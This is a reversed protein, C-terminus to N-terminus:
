SYKLKCQPYDDLLLDSSAHALSEEIEEENLPQKTIEMDRMVDNMLRESTSSVNYLEESIEIDQFIEQMLELIVILLKVSSFPCYRILDNADRIHEVNEVIQKISGSDIGSLEVANYSLVSLQTQSQLTVLLEKLADELCERDENSVARIFTHSCEDEKPPIDFPFLPVSCSEGDCKCLSHCVNCCTHQPDNSSVNEDFPSLLAKRICSNQGAKLAEKVQKDCCKMHKPLYTIISYASSGDRGARGAEQLQGTLSRSPGFHIVYKVNPFDIGMSLSSSAIVVRVYGADGDFSCTISDKLSQPTQSYYVGILCRQHVPCEAQETANSMYLGSSGLKLLLYSLITVIDNVVQCFIITLPTREKDRKLMEVLWGFCDLSDSTQVVTFRINDKNPSVVVEFCNRSIGIFKALRKRMEKSATATLALIPTGGRLFSRLEAVRGFAERFAAQGKKSTGRPFNFKGMIIQLVILKLLLIV